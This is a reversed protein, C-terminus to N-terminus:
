LVVKTPVTVSNELPGAGLWATGGERRVVGAGGGREDQARAVVASRSSVAGGAGLSSSLERRGALEQGGAGARWSRGRGGPGFCVSCYTAVSNQLKEFQNVSGISVCSVCRSRLHSPTKHRVAQMKHRM